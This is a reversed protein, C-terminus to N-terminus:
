GAKVCEFETKRLCVCEPRFFWVEGDIKLPDAIWTMTRSRKILECVGAACCSSITKTVVHPFGSLMLFSSVHYLVDVHSM